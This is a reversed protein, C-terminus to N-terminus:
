TADSKNVLYRQLTGINYAGGRACKVALSFTLNTTTKGLISYPDIKILIDNSEVDDTQLVSFNPDLTCNPSSKNSFVCTYFIFEAYEHDKGVPTVFQVGAFLYTGSSISILDFSSFNYPM